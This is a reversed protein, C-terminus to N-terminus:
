FSAETAWNRLRLAGVYVFEGLIASSRIHIRVWNKAWDPVSTIIKFINEAFFHKQSSVFSFQAFIKASCQTKLFVGIKGYFITIM